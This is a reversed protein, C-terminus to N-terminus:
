RRWRQGPRTLSLTGDNRPAAAGIGARPRQRSRTLGWATGGRYWDKPLKADADGRRAAGRKQRDAEAM